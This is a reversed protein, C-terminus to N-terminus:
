GVPLDTINDTATCGCGVIRDTHRIGVEIDYIRGEPPAVYGGAKGTAVIVDKTTIKYVTPKLKTLKRM